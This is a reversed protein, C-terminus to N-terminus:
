RTASTAPDPTLCSGAMGPVCGHAFTTTPAAPTLCEAPVSPTPVCGHNVSATVGPEIPLPVASAPASTEPTSTGPASTSPTISGGTRDCSCLVAAVLVVGAVVATRSLM